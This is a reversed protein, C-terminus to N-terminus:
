GWSGGQVGTVGDVVGGCIGDFCLGGLALEGVQGVVGGNIVCSRCEYRSRTREPLGKKRGGGDKGCDLHKRFGDSGGFGGGRGFRAGWAVVEPGREEEALFVGAPDVAAGAGASPDM